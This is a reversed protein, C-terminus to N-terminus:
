FRVNSVPAGSKVTAARQLARGVKETLIEFDEDNDLKQVEIVLSEINVSSDSVGGSSNTKINPSYGGPVFVNGLVDFLVRLMKTDKASFFSEPDTKSGHVMALGTYDVLGGKAFRKFAKGYEISGGTVAKKAAYQSAVSQAIWASDGLGYGSNVVTGSADKITYNVRWNNKKVPEAEPAPTAPPTQPTEPLGFSEEIEERVDNHADKLAQLQDLWEETYASAQMMGATRYKTSNNQLFRIINDDGGSIIGEIEEWNTKVAGKTSTMTADWDARMKDKNTKTASAFEKNNNGLWTTMSTTAAKTINQATTVMDNQQTENLNKFEPVNNTMWEKLSDSGNLSAQTMASIVRNQELETMKSFGEYNETLFRRAAANSDKMFNIAATDANTTMNQLANMAEQQAISNKSRFGAINTTMWENLAGTSQRSMETFGTISKQKESDTMGVFGRYNQTMWDTLKAVSNTTLGDTGSILEAQQTASMNKFDSMNDKLWATVEEASDHSITSLSQVLAEQEEQTMSTFSTFNRTLWETLEDSSLQSVNQMNRVVDEQEQKTMSTFGIYNNSFWDTAVSTAEETIMHLSEIVREQEAFTMSSFGIYSDMLYARLAENSATQNAVMQDLLAQPNEFLDNYYKDIYEMYADLDEMRAQNSKEQAKIEEEAATWALEERLKAIKETIERQEKARTPDASIASLQSELSSLEERKNTDTSQRKRENLLERMLRTEESYAKKKADVNKKILEYEERYRERLSDLIQSEIDITSEMMERDRENRENVAENLTDRLEIEMDRIKNNLTKLSDELTQIDIVNQVLQKSYDQHKARLAEVDAKTQEYTSSSKSMAALEREKLALKNAVDTAAEQDARHVERMHAIQENTITIVAAIEGRLEYYEKRLRLMAMTFDELEKQKALTELFEKIAKSVGTEAGRGGGGGGGGSRRSPPSTAGLGSPLNTKFRLSGDDGQIVEVSGGDMSRIANVLAMIVAAASDGSAALSGLSAEWNSPDFTSGSVGNLINLMYDMTGIVEYGANQLAMFSHQVDSAAEEGSMGIAAGVAEWALGLEETDKIEGSVIKNMSAFAKGLAPITSNAVKVMETKGVIMNKGYTKMADSMGKIGRGADEFSKMQRITVNNIYSMTTDHLGQMSETGNALANLYLDFDPLIGALGDRQADTLDNFEDRIRQANAIVEEAGESSLLTAMIGQALGTISDDDTSQTERMREFTETLASIAISYSEVAVLQNDIGETLEINLGKVESLGAVTAGFVMEANSAGSMDKFVDPMVGDGFSLSGGAFIKQREEDSMGQYLENLTAITKDMESRMATYAGVSNMKMNNVSMGTVRSAKNMADEINKQGTIMNNQVGYLSVFGNATDATNQVLTRLGDSFEETNTSSMGMLRSVGDMVVGSKEMAEIGEIAVTDVLSKYTTNFDVLTLTGDEITSLFGIMKGRNEAGFGDAISSIHEESVGSLEQQLKSLESKFEGDSKIGSLAKVFSRSLAEGDFMDESSLMEAISMRYERTAIGFSVSGTQIDKSMTVAALQTSEIADVMGNLAVAYEDGGEAATILAERWNAGFFTPDARNMEGALTNLMTILKQGEITAAKLTGAQNRDYDARTVGVTETVTAIARDRSGRSMSSSTVLTNAAVMAMATDYVRSYFAPDTVSELQEAFGKVVKGGSELAKVGELEISRYYGSLSARFDEMSISGDKMKTFLEDFGPLIAAIASASEESLSLWYRNVQDIAGAFGDTGTVSDLFGLTTRAHNRTEEAADKAAKSVGKYTDIVANQTSDISASFSVFGDDSIYSKLVAGDVANWAEGIQRLIKAQGTLTGNMKEVNNLGEVFNDTAFAEKEADSLGKALEVLQSLFGGTVEYLRSGAREKFQVAAEAGMGIVNALGRYVENVRESNQISGNTVAWLSVTARALDSVAGAAFNTSASGFGTGDEGFTEDAVESLGKLGVGLTEMNKLTENTLVNNYKRMSVSANDFAISGNGIDRYFDGFVGETLDKRVDESLGLFSSKIEDLSKNFADVDGASNLSKVAAAFVKFPDAVKGDNIESMVDSFTKARQTIEYLFKVSGDVVEPKLLVAGSSEIANVLNLLYQAAANDKYEESGLLERWNDGSFIDTSIGSMKDAVMTMTNLTRNFLWSVEEFASETHRKVLEADRGTVAALDAYASGLEDADRIAGTMLLSSSAFSDAIKATDGFLLDGFSTRTGDTIGKVSKELVEFTGALALGGEELEKIEELKIRDKLEVLRKSIEPALIPSDDDNFTTKLLGTEIEPLDPFIETIVDHYKEPIRSWAEKVQTAVGSTIADYIQQSYQVVEAGNIIKQRAKAYTEDMGGALPDYSGDDGAYNTSERHRNWDRAKLSAQFLSFNEASASLIAELQTIKAPDVDDSQLFKYIAALSTTIDKESEYAVNRLNKIADSTAGIGSDQLEDIITNKLFEFENLTSDLMEQRLGPMDGLGMFKLWFKKSADVDLYKEINRQAGVIQSGFQSVLKEAYASSDVEIGTDESWASVILEAMNMPANQVADEIANESQNFVGQMFASIEKASSGHKEFDYERISKIQEEMAMELSERLPTPLSQYDINSSFIARVSETLEEAKNEFEIKAIDVELSVMGIIDDINDSIYFGFEKSREGMFMTEGEYGLEGAKEELFKFTDGSFMSAYNGSHWLYRFANPPNNKFDQLEKVIKSFREVKKIEPEVETGFSTLNRYADAFRVRAQLDLQRELEANTRAIAETVSIWGGEANKLKAALEPSDRMMDKVLDNYLEQQTSADSVNDRINKLQGLYGEIGSVKKGIAEQNDKLRKLEEGLSRVPDIAKNKLGTFYTTLLLIGGGVALLLPLMGGITTMLSAISFSKILAGIATIAAGVQGIVVVLAVTTGIVTLMDLNFWKLVEMGRAFTDIVQALGDYLQRMSDGSVVATYLEELSARMRNQAAAVSETSIGFKENTTGAANMAMEYLYAGRTTGDFEESLGAMLNLMRDQQRVGAMQTMIYSRQSDNMKGWNEALENFVDPLDRWTKGDAELLTMNTGLQSNLQAFAKEISNLNTADESNFGKERIQHLRAFMSRMTTGIIESSMRTRESLITIYTALWEYSVGAAKASAASRQMAQGIEEADTAAADGLKVLVDTAREATDVMGSNIATTVLRTSEEMSIAAVRALKTANILRAEVEDDSLGQRYWEVASKALESSPMSLDKSMARFKVGLADVQEVTKMTVVRIENLADHYENAYKVAEKFGKFLFRTALLLSIQLIRKTMQEFKKVQNDQEQAILKHIEAQKSLEATQVNAYNSADLVTQGYTRAREDVLRLSERDVELQNELVGKTEGTASKLSHETTLIRGYLNMREKYLQNVASVDSAFAKEDMASMASGTALRMNREHREQDAGYSPSGYKSQDRVAADYWAVNSKIKDINQRVAEAEKKFQEAMPGDGARIRKSELQVLERQLRMQEAYQTNLERVGAATQDAARKQEASYASKAMRESLSAMQKERDAGMHTGYRSLSIAFKDYEKVQQRIGRIAQSIQKSEEQYFGGLTGGSTKAKHSYDQFRRQLQMQQTYLRNLAQVQRNIGTTEKITSSTVEGAADFGRTTTVEKLAATLRKVQVTTSGTETNLTTIRSLVGDLGPQGGKGMNKLGQNVAEIGSLAQSADINFQFQFNNAM